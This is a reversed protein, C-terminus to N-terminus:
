MGFRADRLVHGSMGDGSPWGPYRSTLMADHADQSALIADYADWLVENVAHERLWCPYCPHARPSFVLMTTGDSEQWRKWLVDSMLLGLVELEGLDSPLSAGALDEGEFDLYHGYQAALAQALELLPWSSNDQHQPHVPDAQQPPAQQGEHEYEMATIVVELAIEARIQEPSRPGDGFEWTSPDATELIRTADDISTSPDLITSSRLQEALNDVLAGPGPADIEITSMTSTLADVDGMTKDNNNTSM